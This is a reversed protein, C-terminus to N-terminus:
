RQVGLNIETDYYSDLPEVSWLMHYGRGLRAIIWYNVAPNCFMTKLHLRHGLRSYLEKRTDTSLESIDIFHRM